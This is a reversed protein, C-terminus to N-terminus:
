LYLMMAFLVSSVLLGDAMWNVMFDSNPSDATLRSRQFIVCWVREGTTVANANYKAYYSMPGGPYNRQDILFTQTWKTELLLGATALSTLVIVYVLLWHHGKHGHRVNRWLARVCHVAM